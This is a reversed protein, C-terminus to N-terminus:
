LRRNMMRIAATKLRDVTIASDGTLAKGAATLMPHGDVIRVIGLERMNELTGTEIPRGSHLDMLAWGILSQQHFDLDCFRSPSFAPAPEIPLRGEAKGHSRYHALGSRIRGADVARKVDPYKHLYWDEDFEPPDDDQMVAETCLMRKTTNELKALAHNHTANEAAPQSRPSTSTPSGASGRRAFM